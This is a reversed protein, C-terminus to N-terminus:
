SRKGPPSTAMLQGMRVLLWCDSKRNSLVTPASPFTGITPLNASVAVVLSSEQPVETKCLCFFVNSIYITAMEWHCFCM